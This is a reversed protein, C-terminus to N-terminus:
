VIWPQLANLAYGVAVIGVVCVAIFLALLRPKVVRRLMILSPLSLTTVSMTFSLATGLMAGKELLAEAVPVVGFIDAYMPAGALVALAVGLPNEGGLLTEIWRAPIWNHILAGAGVGLLIYPWLGRLTTGTRIRAGRLRERVSRAPADTRAEDARVFEELAREMRMRGILAGGAVAILLGFLVYLIAVRAGFVGTLLMLSGLDVMPSSILFSFTVGLPVGAGVFGIFLPISSCSCFATVTGLLAALVNAGIGRFRALLRRSREPPFYSQIYSMLFVMACLLLVIKISDYLFFHLSGALPSHLDLGAAGLVRALLRKLWEMGLIQEQVFTTMARIAGM